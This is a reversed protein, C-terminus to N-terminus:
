CIRSMGFAILTMWNSQGSWLLHVPNMNIGIILSVETKIDGGSSYGLHKCVVQADGKGWFDDCVIYGVSFESM